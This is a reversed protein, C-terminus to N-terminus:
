LRDVIKLDDWIGDGYVADSPDPDGFTFTTEQSKKIDCSKKFEKEFLVDYDGEQPHVKIVVKNWVNTDFRGILANKDGERCMLASGEGLLLEVNKDKYVTYGYNDRHQLMYKFSVVYDKNWDMEFWPAEATASRMMQSRMELAKVVKLNPHDVVEMAGGGNSEVKWFGIGNSFNEIFYVKQPIEVAQPGSDKVCGCVFLICLLLMQLRM